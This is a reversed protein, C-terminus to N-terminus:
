TRPACEFDGPCTYTVVYAPYAQYFDYVVFQKGYVNGHKLLTKAM